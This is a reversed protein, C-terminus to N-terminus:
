EDAKVLELDEFVNRSIGQCMSDNRKLVDKFIKKSFLEEEWAREVVDELLNVIDKSM